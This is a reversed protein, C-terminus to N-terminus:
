HQSTYTESSTHNCHAWAVSSAVDTELREGTIRCQLDVIAAVGLLPRELATDTVAAKWGLYIIRTRTVRYVVCIRWKRIEWYTFGFRETEQIRNVRMSM